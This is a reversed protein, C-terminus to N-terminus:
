GSAFLAIGPAHKHM